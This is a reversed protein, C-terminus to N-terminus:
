AMLADPSFDTTTIALGDVVGPGLITAPIYVAFFFLTDTSIAFGM